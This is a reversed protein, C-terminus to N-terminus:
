SDFLFCRQRAFTLLNEFKRQILIRPETTLVFCRITPLEDKVHDPTQGDDAELEVGVDVDVVVDVGEEEDMETRVFEFLIFPFEFSNFSRWM